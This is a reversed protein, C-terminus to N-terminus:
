HRRSPRSNDIVGTELDDEPQARGGFWRGQSRSKKPDRAAQPKAPGDTNRSHPQGKHSSPEGSTDDDYRDFEDPLSMDATDQRREQKALAKAGKERLHKELLVANRTNCKYVADAVDGIFPVLGIFFDIVINMLMMMRLRSPLGGDIKDCTHVVMLALAADAGDGIFPFLGIVSGWGFRIGCLSFLCLDLRYARRKVQTLVKSDNQSLGPPVAKRRKQTKKGFARNLRSAPVEEFYPDEQGFHNRASEALIKKGVLNALQASM